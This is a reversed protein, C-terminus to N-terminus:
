RPWVGARTDAVCDAHTGAVCDAVCWCWPGPRLVRAPRRVPRRPLCQNLPLRTVAARAPRAKGQRRPRGRDGHGEGTATAKGQRRPRGRDGHAPLRCAAPCGVHPSLITPAISRCLVAPCCLGSARPVAFGYKVPPPSCATLATTLLISRCPPVAYCSSLLLLLAPLRLRRSYSDYSGHYCAAASGLLLVAAVLLRRLLRRSYSDYSGDHFAAPATHAHAHTDDDEALPNRTNTRARARARARARTRAHAHAHTHM